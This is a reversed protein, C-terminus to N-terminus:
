MFFHDLKVIWGLGALFGRSKKLFYIRLLRQAVSNQVM